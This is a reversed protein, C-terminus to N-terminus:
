LDHPSGMNTRALSRFLPLPLKLRVVTLLENM